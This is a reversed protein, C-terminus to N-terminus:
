SQGGVFLDLFACRIDWARAEVGKRYVTRPMKRIWANPAVILDNGRQDKIVLPQPNQGGSQRDAIAFASLVGNSLSPQLLTLTVTARYDNTVWRAVDGDAGIDDEIQNAEYDAVVIDAAFGSIIAGGFIVSLDKPDFTNVRNPM